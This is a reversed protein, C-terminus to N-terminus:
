GQFTKIQAGLKTKETKIQILEECHAASEEDALKSKVKAENFHENIAKDQSAPSLKNWAKRWKLIKRDSIKLWLLELKATLSFQM